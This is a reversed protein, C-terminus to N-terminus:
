RLILQRGIHRQKLWSKAQCTPIISFISMFVAFSQRKKFVNSKSGYKCLILNGSCVSQCRYISSEWTESKCFRTCFLIDYCLSRKITLRLIYINLNIALFQSKIYYITQFDSQWWTNTCTFKSNRGTANTRIALHKCICTFWSRNRKCITTACCIKVTDFQCIRHSKCRNHTVINCLLSVSHISIRCLLENYIEIIYCISIILPIRISSTHYINVTIIFNNSSCRTCITHRCRVLSSSIIITYTRVLITRCLWDNRSHIYIVINREVELVPRGILINSDTYFIYLFSVRTDDLSLLIIYLPWHIRNEIWIIHSTIKSTHLTTIIDCDNRTSTHLTSKSFSM